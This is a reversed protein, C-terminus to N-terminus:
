LEKLEDQEEEMEEKQKELEDLEEGLQEKLVGDQFHWIV